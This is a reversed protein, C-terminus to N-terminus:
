AAREEYLGRVLGAIERCAVDAQPIAGTFAAFAHSLSDYCRYRVTVGAANLARAYAEGQDVLPDFGATAIVAPALGTLDTERLPSLRVGAPNEGPSLYHGMFWAMMGSTLPFADAYTTMSPAESAADTCPYVLLQLAPQPEGARKLEQCVIAAFNGGMSDGGIAVGTAGYGAAQDRAWRYAALVDDLGAPFRHEPALRYDVSLVPACTIRALLTCVCHSTELGGIVGGGMHAWVMLPAAPDQAEPRYLRAPVDGEGGPVSIPEWRVGPEPDGTLAVIGTAEARRADEPTQSEVAPGKRAQAALFQLRPDLTRGGKYVVGGGAMLRLIPSPLSLITRAILRQAAASAM